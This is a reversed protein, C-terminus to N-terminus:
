QRVRERCQRAVRLVEDRETDNLDAPRLPDVAFEAPVAGEDEAIWLMRQVSADYPPRFTVRALEDVVASVDLFRAAADRAPTHMAAAFTDVAAAVVQTAGGLGLLAGEAGWMLSPGLMRQEGSLVLVGRARAAAIDDQCAIADHHRAPQLAVVGPHDLLTALVENPYPRSDLDVAILPLGSVKWLADHHDILADVGADTHSLDPPRVLLAAAGADAAAEAWASDDQSRGAESHRGAADGVGAIAPVGVAAARRILESWADVPLTQRRGAPAAIALAGAGGQALHRFYAACVDPDIHGDARTPTPPVAVLSWRLRDTLRVEPSLAVKAAYGTM